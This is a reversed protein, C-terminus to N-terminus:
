QQGEKNYQAQSDPFTLRRLGHLAEAPLLDDAFVFFVPASRRVRGHALELRRHFTLCAIGKTSYANPRIMSEDTVVHMVGLQGDRGFAYNKTENTQLEGIGLRYRVPEGQPSFTRLWDEGPRDGPRLFMETSLMENSWYTGTDQRIETWYALVPAGPLMLYYGDCTAGKYHEHKRIVLRVRIGSWVNGMDDPLSVFSSSCKEKLVSLPRMRDLQDYMGGIWPNWWSKAGYEPFGSALWERGGVALTRLGPYYEASTSIRILGNDAEHTMKGAETTERCDVSGSSVPFLVTQFSKDLSSLRADVRVTDCSSSPQPLTFRAEASEEELTLIVKSATGSSAKDSNGSKDSVYSATVEGEWLNQKMDRLTVSVGDKEPSVFPNGDNVNLEVDRIAQLPQPLEARKLAFDRFSRWDDFGGLSLMVVGTRKKEGAELRGLPTELEFFWIGLNMRHTDSWCIGNATGDGRFFLWPESVKDSDWYNYDAGHSDSMEVYRGEYPLVGRYMDHIARQSIWMEGSTARDSINELEQWLKVTGDAYLLSHVHLLVQSFADSRYTQIFGVAGGEEKREVREPRKKSFEGSYPKGIQPHLLYFEYERGWGRVRLRNDEKNYELTYKGNIAVRLTETEGACMAGPGRFGGGISRVFRVTQGSEPHAFVELKREYFGYDLLKCPVPLSMRDNAGLQVKFERRELELWPESPLQFTFSAAKPYHNEIDLYFEYRGQLAHMLDPVKMMISAPFKPMIGVQLVAKRGNILVNARVTPCTQRDSQPEEIEGVFFRATLVQEGEVDVSQRWNFSINRDNVGEFDLRLPAGSKNIVHYQVKYEQGFVPEAQEVAASLLYDETEIRCIGRGRREVGVRLERGANKWEYTYTHFDNNVEGDPAVEIPRTSDAYWDLGEMYPALAECNVVQPIFNMFHTTDERDEWFFGCRKYLPVAKMNAEWTYLDVRPWGRRITEEVARLVLMKGIKKGHYDPRVNLLQIYLAGTDERYEGLSCYGIVEEGCVALFVALSDSNEEERKVQEATSVTTGGGWEEQSRDWMEAIGAAYKPHYNVIEISKSM